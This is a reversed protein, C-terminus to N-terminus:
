ARLDPATPRGGLSQGPKARNLAVLVQVFPCQKCEALVKRAGTARVQQFATSLTEEGSEATGVVHCSMKSLDRM